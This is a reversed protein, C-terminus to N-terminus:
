EVKSIFTLCLGAIIDIWSFRFFCCYAFFFVIHGTAFLAAGGIFFIELVIDGAMAFILAILMILSFKKHTSNIKLAYIFNVVGILVFLASAISKSLLGGIVIFCVDGVLVGTALILNLIFFLKKM